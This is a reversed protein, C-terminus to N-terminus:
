ESFVQCGLAIVVLVAVGRTELAVFPAGYHEGKNHIIKSNFINVFFMGIMEAVADFFV